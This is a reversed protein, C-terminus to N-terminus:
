ISTRSSSEAFINAENSRCCFNPEIDELQKWKNHWLTFFKEDPGNWETLHLDLERILTTRTYQGVASDKYYKHLGIYVKQANKSDFHTRLLPAGHEVTELTQTFVFYMQVMQM